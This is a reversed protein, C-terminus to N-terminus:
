RFYYRSPIDFSKNDFKVTTTQTPSCAALNLKLYYEGIRYVSRCFCYHKFTCSVKCLYIYLHHLSQRKYVDLHTYSVPKYLNWKGKKKKKIEM